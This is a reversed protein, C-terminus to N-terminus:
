SPVGELAPRRLAADLKVHVARPALDRVERQHVLLAGEAELQASPADRPIELEPHVSQSRAGGRLIRAGPQISGRQAQAQRVM